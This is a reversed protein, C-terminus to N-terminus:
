NHPLLKILCGNGKSTAYYEGNFECASSIGHMVGDARSHWTKVVKFDADCLALLGYSRSPAWPKIVGMQRVIGQMIPQDPATSVSLDPAVWDEPDLNAMMDQRYDDENLIMEFLQRRPAFMALLYDGNQTKSLRSPYAPLNDLIVNFDDPVNIDIKILRHAWSETIVLQDAGLTVIGNPFALNDCIPTAENTLLNLTIVQGARNKELLDRKWDHAPLQMSGICIALLNNSMFCASTACKNYKQNLEVQCWDNDNESIYLGVFQVMVAILGNESATIFTINNEFQHIRKAQPADNKLDIQWLESGSSLLLNGRVECICDAAQQASVILSQDLLNNPKFAGDMSPVYINAENKDAFLGIFKEIVGM